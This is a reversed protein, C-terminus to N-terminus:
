KPEPLGGTIKAIRARLRMAQDNDVRRLGPLGPDSSAVADETMDPQRLAEAEVHDRAKLGMAEPGGLPIQEPSWKPARRKRSVSM